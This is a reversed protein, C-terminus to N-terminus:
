DSEFYRLLNSLKLDIRTMQKFNTKM